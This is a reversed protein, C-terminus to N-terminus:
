GEVEDSITLTEEAPVGQSTVSHDTTEDCTKM